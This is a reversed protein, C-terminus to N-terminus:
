DQIVWYPTVFTHTRTNLVGSVEAPQGVHVTTLAGLAGRVLVASQSALTVTLPPGGGTPALVLRGDTADVSTVTGREIGDILDLDNVATPLDPGAPPKIVVRDGATYESPAAALSGVIPIHTGPVYGGAAFFGRGLLTGSTLAVTRFRGDPAHVTLATPTIQIVTSTVAHAPVVSAWAPEPGCTSTPLLLPMLPAQAFNFNDLLASVRAERPGLPALNFRQEVFKLLSTFTAPTHDISGARAYPSIVIAPVRPGWGIQDVPPPPVHDYFGGFDDWTVFTASSSWQPGAAIAQLVSVTWNEGTCV